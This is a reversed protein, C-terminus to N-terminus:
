RIVGIRFGFAEDDALLILLTGFVREGRITGGVELGFDSETESDSEEIGMFEFDVSARSVVLQPLAHLVLRTNGSLSTETGIGGGLTLALVDANEISSYGVGAVPCITVALGPVEYILRGEVGFGMDAGEVDSDILDAHADFSLPGAPNVGAMGGFRTGGDFFLARGGFMNQGDMMPTGVCIQGEAPSIVFLVACICAVFNLKRM